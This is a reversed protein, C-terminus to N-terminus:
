PKQSNLRETVERSYIEGAVLTQGAVQLHFADVVSSIDM